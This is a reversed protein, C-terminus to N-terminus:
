FSTSCHQRIHKCRLKRICQETCEVMGLEARQWLAQEEALIIPWRRHKCIGMDHYRHIYPPCNLIQRHFALPNEQTVRTPISISHALIHLLFSPRYM